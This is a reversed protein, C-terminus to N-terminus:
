SCTIAAVTFCVIKQYALISIATTVASHHFWQVRGRNETLIQVSELIEPSTESDFHAKKKLLYVM